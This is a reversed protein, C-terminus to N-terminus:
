QGKTQLAKRLNKAEEALSPIPSLDIVIDLFNEAEKLYKHKEIAYKCFNILSQFAEYDLGRKSLARFLIKHLEPHKVYYTVKKLYGIITDYFGDNLLARSTEIAIDVARNINGMNYYVDFLLMKLQKNNPEKKLIDMLEKLAEPYKEELILQMIELKPDSRSVM